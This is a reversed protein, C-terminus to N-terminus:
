HGLSRADGDGRLSAAFVGPVLITGVVLVAVWLLLAEVHCTGFGCGELSREREVILLPLSAPSAVVTTAAFTTAVTPITRRLVGVIRDPARAANRAWVLAVISTLVAIGVSLPFRDAFSRRDVLPLAIEFATLAAWYALKITTVRGVLLTLTARTPLPAQPNPDDLPLHDVV